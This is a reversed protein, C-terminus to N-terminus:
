GALPQSDPNQENAILKELRQMQNISQTIGENYSIVLDRRNYDLARQRESIKHYYESKEKALSLRFDITKESPKDPILTPNKLLESAVRINEEERAIISENLRIDYNKKINRNAMKIIEKSNAIESEINRIKESKYTFVKGTEEQKAFKPDASLVGKRGKSSSSSQGSSTGFMYASLGTAIDGLGEGESVLAYLAGAAVAIVAFGSVLSLAGKAMQKLSDTELGQSKMYFHRAIVIGLGVAALGGIAWGVPTMATAAIGAAVGAGVAVKACVALVFIGVGAFAFAWNAKKGMKNDKAESLVEKETKNIYKEKRGSSKAVTEPKKNLDSMEVSPGHINLSNM